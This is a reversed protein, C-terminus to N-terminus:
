KEGRLEEAYDLTEKWTWKKQEYLSILLLALGIGAGIIIGTKLTM